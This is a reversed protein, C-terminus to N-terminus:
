GDGRVVQGAPGGRGARVGEATNIKQLLQEMETSYNRAKAILAQFEAEYTAINDPM